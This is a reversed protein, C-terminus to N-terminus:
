RTPQKHTTSGKDTRKEEKPSAPVSKSTVVVLKSQGKMPVLVCNMFLKEIQLGGHVHM